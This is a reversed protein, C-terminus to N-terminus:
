KWNTRPCWRARWILCDVGGNTFTQSVSLNASRKFIYAVVHIAIDVACDPWGKWSQSPPFKRGLVELFKIKEPDFIFPFSTTLDIKKLLSCLFGTQFSPYIICRNCMSQEVCIKVESIHSGHIWNQGSGSIAADCLITDLADKNEYYDFDSLVLM